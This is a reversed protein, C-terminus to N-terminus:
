TGESKAKLEYILALADKPTLEDPYVNELAEEVASPGKATTPAPTANFLPLEDILTATKGGKDSSELKDLVETARGIVATPLGALKAVQM